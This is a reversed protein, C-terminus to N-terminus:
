YKRSAPNSTAERNGNRNRLELAILPHTAITTTIFQHYVKRRVEEDSYLKTKNLRLFFEWLRSFFEGLMEDKKLTMRVFEGYLDDASSVAGYIQDLVKVVAWASLCEGAQTLALKRLSGRVRSLSDREDPGEQLYADVKEKWESFIVERSSPEPKLGTFVGLKPPPLPARVTVNVAPQQGHQRELYERAEKEKALQAEYHAMLEETTKESAAQHQTLLRQLDAVQEELPSQGEENKDKGGGGSKDRGAESAM